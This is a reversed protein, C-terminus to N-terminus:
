LKLKYISSINMLLKNINQISIAYEMIKDITHNEKAYLELKDINLHLIGNATIKKNYHLDIHVLHRLQRLNSDNITMSCQLKKLNKFKTIDVNALYREDLIESLWYESIKQCKKCIKRFKFVFDLDHQQNCFVITFVQTIKSM